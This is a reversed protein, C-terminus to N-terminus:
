EKSLKVCLREAALAKTKFDECRVSNADKFFLWKKQDDTRLVEGYHLKDILLRAEQESEPTPLESCCQLYNSSDFFTLFKFSSITELSKVIGGNQAVQTMVEPFEFGNLLRVLNTMLFNLTKEEFLESFTKWFPYKKFPTLQATFANDFQITIDYPTNQISSKLTFLALDKPITAIGFVENILPDFILCSDGWSDVKTLASEPRRNIVLFMHNVNVNVKHSLAIIEINILRQPGIGFMVFLHAAALMSFEQCAGMQKIANTVSCDTLALFSAGMMTPLITSIEEEIKDDQKSFSARVGPGFLKNLPETLITKLQEEYRARIISSNDFSKRREASDRKLIVTSLYESIALLYDTLSEPSTMLSSSLKKKLLTQERNLPM